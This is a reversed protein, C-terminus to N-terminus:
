EGLKKSFMASDTIARLGFMLAGLGSVLWGVHQPNDILTAWNFGQVAGVLILALSIIATRKTKLM